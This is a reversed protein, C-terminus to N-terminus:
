LAELAFGGLEEASRVAEAYRVYTMSESAHGLFAQVRKTPLGADLLLSNLRHRLSRPGYRPDRFREREKRKTGDPGGALWTRWRARFASLTLFPHGERGPADEGARERLFALAEATLARVQIKARGAAGSAKRNLWRLTGAQLDIDDWRLRGVESPRMGSFRVWVLFDRLAPDDACAARFAELEDTGGFVPTEAAPEARPLLARLAGPNSARAPIMGAAQGHEWAARLTRMEARVTRGLVGERERGALYDRVRKLGARGVLDRAFTGEGLRALLIRRHSRYGALTKEQRGARECAALYADFVAGLTLPARRRRREEEIVAPRVEALDALLDSNLVELCSRFLRAIREAAAREPTKLSLQLKM